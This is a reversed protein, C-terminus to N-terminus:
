ERVNTFGRWVNIITQKWQQLTPFEETYYLNILIPYEIFPNTNRQVRKVKENREVLKNDMEKYQIENLWKKWTKYHITKHFSEQSITPHHLDIYMIAFLIYSKSSTDIPFYHKSKPKHYFPFDSRKGNEDSNAIYLHHMDRKLHPKSKLHKQCWIHEINRKKIFEHITENHDNETGNTYIETDFLHQFIYKQTKEYSILQIKKKQFYQQIEHRIFLHFIRKSLM